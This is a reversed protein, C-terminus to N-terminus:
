YLGKQKLNKLVRPILEKDHKEGLISLIDIDSYGADQLTLVDKKIATYGPKPESLFDYSKNLSDNLIPSKSLSDSVQSLKQSQQTNEYDFDCDNSQSKTFALRSNLKVFNNFAKPNEYAHILSALITM